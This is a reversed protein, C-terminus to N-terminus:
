EEFPIYPINKSMTIFVQTEEDITAVTLKNANHSLPSSTDIRTKEDDFSYIKKMDELAEKFQKVTGGTM